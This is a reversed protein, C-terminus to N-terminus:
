SRPAGSGRHGTDTFCTTSAWILSPLHAGSHTATAAQSCGDPSTRLGGCTARLRAAHRHHLRHQGKRGHRQPESGAREAQGGMMRSGDLQWRNLMDSHGLLASQGPGRPRLQRRPQGTQPVVVVCGRSQGRCIHRKICSSSGLTPCRTVCVELGVQVAERGVGPCGKSARSCHPTGPMPHPSEPFPPSLSASLHPWFPGAPEESRPITCSPSPNNASSALRTTQRFFLGPLLRGPSLGHLPCRAGRLHPLHQLDGRPAPDSPRPAPFAPLLRLAPLPPQPTGPSGKM